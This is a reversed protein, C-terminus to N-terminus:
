ASEKLAIITNKIIMFMQDDIGFRKRNIELGEFIDKQSRESAAVWDCCMEILQVCHMNPVGGHYEPHHDNNEYHHKWAPGLLKVAAKYGDSGYGHKQLEPFTQDYLEFEEPSFKSNDHIAARRFLDSIAHGLWPAYGGGSFYTLTNRYIETSQGALRLYKMLDVHNVVLEALDFLTSAEGLYEIYPRKKDMEREFFEMAAVRMYKAVREKHDILDKVYDSPMCQEGDDISLIVGVIAAVVAKGL